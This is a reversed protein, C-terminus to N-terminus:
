AHIFFTLINTGSASSAANFLIFIINIDGSELLFHILELFLEM